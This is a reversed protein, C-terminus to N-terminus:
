HEMLLRMDALIISRLKKSHSMEFMLMAGNLMEEKIIFM